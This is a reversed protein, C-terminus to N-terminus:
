EALEVAVLKGIKPNPERGVVARHPGAVLAQRELEVLKGATISASCSSSASARRRPRISPPADHAVEVGSGALKTTIHGATLAELDDAGPGAM